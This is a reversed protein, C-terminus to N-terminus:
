TCYQDQPGWNSDSLAVMTNNDIPFNVFASLTNNSKTSFAIALNQTGKLYKVVRIASDIHGQSPNHTYKSLLAVITSIDPRTSIAIWNLSGVLFQMHKILKEKMPVPYQKKPISDVLFGSWYPTHSQFKIGLFYDIKDMFTCTIKKAFETM